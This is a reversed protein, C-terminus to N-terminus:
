RRGFGFAVMFPDRVDTRFTQGDDELFREPIFEAPEPYMEPDQLM